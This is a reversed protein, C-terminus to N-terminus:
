TNKGQLLKRLKVITENEPELRAAKRINLLMKREEGMHYYYVAWAAFLEAQWNTLQNNAILKDARHLESLAEGKSGRELAALAIDITLRLERPADNFQQAALRSAQRLPDIM